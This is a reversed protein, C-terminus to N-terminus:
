NQVMFFKFVEAIMGGLGNGIAISIIIVILGFVIFKAIENKKM